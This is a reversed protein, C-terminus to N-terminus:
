PFVAVLRVAAADKALCHRLLLGSPPLARAPHRLLLRVTAVYAPWTQGLGTILPTETIGEGEVVLLM